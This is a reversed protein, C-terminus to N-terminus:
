AQDTIPLTHGEPTVLCFPHGAPDACIRYGIPKDSGSLLTAGLQLVRAEANDLDHVLVDLHAQQPPTGRAWDPRQYDSARQFAVTPYRGVAPGLTVWDQSDELVNLGLLQSYFGALEQPDPCDIVVGIWRGVPSTQHDVSPTDCALSEM